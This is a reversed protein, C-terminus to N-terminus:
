FFLSGSRSRAMARIGASRSNRRCDGCSTIAIFSERRRSMASGTHGGCARENQVRATAENAAFCRVAVSAEAVPLSGSPQGRGLPTSEVRHIEQRSLETQNWSGRQLFFHRRAGIRKPIQTVIQMTIALFKLLFNMLELGRPLLCDAAISQGIAGTLNKFGQTRTLMAFVLFLLPAALLPLEVSGIQQLAPM